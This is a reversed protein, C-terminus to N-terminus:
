NSGAKRQVLLIKRDGQHIDSKKEALTNQFLKLKYTDNSIIFSTDTIMMHSCYFQKKSLRNGM